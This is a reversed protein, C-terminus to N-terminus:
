LAQLKRVIGDAGDTGLAEDCMPYLINEEKMNHLGLVSTLSDLGQAIRSESREATDTVVQALIQKITTHESRMVTTPGCGGMAAREEFVPFLVDEEMRIHRELGTRFAGFREEAAAWAGARVHGRFTRLVGDLREHDWQLYEHIGREAGDETPRRQIEVRWRAPGAELVSWNFTGAHEVQFQYLLPKPDHDNVLVFAEGEALAAFTQFIGAHRAAPALPRVDLERTTAM